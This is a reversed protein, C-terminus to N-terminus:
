MKCEFNVIGLEADNWYLTIAFKYKINPSKKVNKAAVGFCKGDVYYTLTQKKLNLEMMLVSGPAGYSSGYKKIKKGDQYIYADSVFFYSPAANTDCFIQKNTNTENSVIGIIVGDNNRHNNIMKVTWKIINSTNSAIWNAGFAVNYWGRKEKYIIENRDGKVILGGGVKEFYELKGYFLFCLNLISSPIISQSSFLLKTQQNIYGYVLVENKENKDYYSCDKVKQSNGM